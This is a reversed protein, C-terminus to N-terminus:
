CPVPSSALARRVMVELQHFPFPKSLFASAGAAEARQWIEPTAYGTTLIVRCQPAAAKIAATLAVGDMGPMRYDTLVLVVPQRRIQALATAGDAVAIVNYGPALDCVLRYLVALVTPEDDVLIITPTSRTTM